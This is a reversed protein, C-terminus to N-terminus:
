LEHQVDGAGSVPLARNPAASVTTAVSVTTTIPSVASTASFTATFGATSTITSTVFSAATFSAAATDGTTPQSHDNAAIASALHQRWVRKRGV